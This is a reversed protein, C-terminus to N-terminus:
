DAHSGRLTDACACASRGAVWRDDINVEVAANRALTEACGFVARRPPSTWGRPAMGARRTTWDDAPFLCADRHRAAVSPPGVASAGASAGRREARRRADAPSAASAASAASEVSGDRGDPGSEIESEANAPPQSVTPSATASMLASSKAGEGFFRPERRVSRRASMASTAIWTRSGPHPMHFVMRTAPEKASPPPKASLPKFLPDSSALPAALAASTPHPVSYAPTRKPTVSPTKKKALLAIVRTPDATLAVTSSCWAFPFSAGVVDLGGPLMRTVQTTHELIADADIDLPAGGSAPRQPRGTTGSGAGAGDGDDDGGEANWDPFPVLALIIDRAGAERKGVILGIQPPARDAILKAHVSEVAGEEILASRSAM